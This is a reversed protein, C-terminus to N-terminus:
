APLKSFFLLENSPKPRSRGYVAETQAPRMTIPGARCIGAECFCTKQSKKADGPERVTQYIRYPKTAGVRESEELPPDALEINVISVKYSITSECGGKPCAQTSIIITLHSSSLPHFQSTLAISEIKVLIRYDVEGVPCQEVATANFDALISRNM